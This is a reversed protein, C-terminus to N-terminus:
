KPPETAADVVVFERNRSAKVLTLGLQDRVAAVLSTSDGAKWQLQFDYRGTLGSEDIVEVDDLNRSLVDALRKINTGLGNFEGAKPKNGDTEPADSQKLKSQAESLVWVETSRQEKHMKIAFTNTVLELMMTRRLAYETAPALTSADYRRKEFWAPVILRDMRTEYGLGYYLLTKATEGYYEIRGGVGRRVFGPAFGAGDFAPRILSQILPEPAGKMLELSPMQPKRQEATPEPFKGALAKRLVAVTLQDPYISSRLMGDRDILITDPRAMAGYRDFTAGDKDIGVWGNMSRTKLFAQVVGADEDSVSIFIVPEKSMAAAVANLHPIQEVCPGCWTAWFELVVVKGRLASLTPVFDGPVQLGQKLVLEPAKEDYAHHNVQANCSMVLMMLVILMRM